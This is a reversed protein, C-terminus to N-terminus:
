MPVGLIIPALCRSHTACTHKISRLVRSQAHVHAKEVVVALNPPTACMCLQQVLMAPRHWRCVVCMAGSCLVCVSCTHLSAAVLLETSACRGAAAALKPLMACMCSQWVPSLQLCQELEDGCAGARTRVPMSMCRRTEGVMRGRQHEPGWGSAAVM